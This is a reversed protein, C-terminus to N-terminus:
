EETEEVIKKAKTEDESLVYLEFSGFAKYMSDQQNLILVHIGEGELKDKMLNASYELSSTYILKRNEM